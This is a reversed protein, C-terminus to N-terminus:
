SCGSEQQRMNADQTLVLRDRADYVMYVEGAGPVKKMIMRGRQDYEYRFTQENLITSNFLWSTSLEQVGVPQVVARLQDLDDYIYYTCIWDNNHGRGTGDDEVGIATGIQVKKLIVKGGKDKFEVVQKGHEDKSVNKVLTGPDYPAASTYAGFGSGLPGTNNNVEWIRVADTITNLWYKMEIGRNNGVWSNGPAMTKEVRNLPSAEFNTKSYYFTENQSGYHATMFTEQQQFPNSKFAGDNIHTNNGTNNAVFPLYKKQERGFEDYLTASVLDTATGGTELSGQKSVSQIPRGLGDFYGTTMRSDKVPKTMLANADTVPALADWSRVFNVPISGYQPPVPDPTQAGM